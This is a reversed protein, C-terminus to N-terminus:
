SLLWRWLPIFQVVLGSIKEERNYDWTLVILNEAKLHRQARLLSRVERQQTRSDTINYAVQILEILKTGRRTVFDVEVGNRNRYYYVDKKRRLLEVAVLNEMLRGHDPSLGYRLANVMGTDYSYVKQPSKLQEKLKFSFRSISFILFAESLYSIYNQTTHVSRFDLIKRLRTNTYRCAFNSILYYALDSLLKPYRVRYRKVIDKFLISEFLVTLYDRPDLPKVVVEPYGGTTLYENLANLISGEIEPDSDVDSFSIGKATLYERFSFPYVDFEMYRGTLHTALERSLLRSNSGTLVVEYGKRQLRNVFLEWKELNQIEDFLLFKTRGYIENIGKLLQDYNSVKLLREDDFNLYAFETDRLMQLAFVSKGARRPGIIVKILSNGLTRRANALNERKIYTQNLLRKKESRHAVILDKMGIKLIFQM